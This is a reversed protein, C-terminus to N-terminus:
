VKNDNLYKLVEFSYQYAFMDSSNNINIDFLENIKTLRYFFTSKHIHLARAAENSNRNKLIFMKLTIAYETNNRKDYELMSKIHPHVSASVLTKDMHSLIHCLFNMHYFIFGDEDTDTKGTLLVEELQRFYLPSDAIDNFGYSVLIQMNNHMMFDSLKNKLYERLPISNNNPLLITIRNHFIVAMSYSLLTQLREFYFKINAHSDTNDKFDCILINYRLAPKIGLQVLQSALYVKSREFNGDLLETLFFEYKVGTKTTFTADKQMEISIMRSLTHIVELDEPCLEKNATCVCVYAVVSNKIRIGEYVWKYPTHIMNKAIFPLTSTYITDIVKKERMDEVLPQKLFLKDGTFDIYKDEDPLPIRSIISFSTDCVNIPNGIINYAINIIGQIGNGSYLADFLMELKPKNTMFREKLFLIDSM